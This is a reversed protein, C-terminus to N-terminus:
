LETPAATPSRGSSSAEEDPIARMVSVHRGEGDEDLMLRYQIRLRERGDLPVLVATSELVRVEELLALLWPIRERSEAATFAGPSASRLGALDVGLLELAQDNADLYRGQDDVTLRAENPDRWWDPDEAFPSYRGDRYVYWAQEGGGMAALGDRARVVVRPYLRRLIDELGAPSSAEGAAVLHLATELFARDHPPFCLLTVGATTVSRYPL